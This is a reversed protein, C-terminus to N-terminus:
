KKLSQKESILFHVVLLIVFMRILGVYVPAIWDEMGKIIQIWFVSYVMVGSLSIGTCEILYEYILRFLMGMLLMGFVVGALGFNILWDGVMTPGISTIRDTAGLIGIRRGFDNGSANVSLPKNKWMSRPPSFVLLIEKFSKGYELPQPHNIIASLIVSQNIRSLFSDTAFKGSNLVLSAASSGGDAPTTRYGAFANPHRCANGIPFIFLAILGIVFLINWFNRELVYWRVILYIILPTIIAMRGCSPFAYLMELLLSGWAAFRWVKYRSDGTRKLHFYAIFAMALAMYSLWDLTGILNYFQSRIFFSSVEMHFYGGGLIRVAKVMLGFFFIFGFIWAVKTFNWKRAFNNPLKRGIFVPLKNFYGIAFFILGIAAYGLAEYPIILSTPVFKVSIGFLALIPVLYFIVFYYAIASNGLSFIDFGSFNIKNLIKSFKNM